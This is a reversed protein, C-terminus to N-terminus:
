AYFGIQHTKKYDEVEKATSSILEAFEIMNKLIKM